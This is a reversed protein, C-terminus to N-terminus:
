NQNVSVIFTAGRSELLKVTDGHNLTEEESAPQVLIYHVQGHVDVFKAETPKNVKGVARGTVVATNGVFTNSSIASTEVKPMIRAIWEGIFHLIPVAAVFATSVALFQPWYFGFLSETTEQIILGCLAFSTLFVVIVMMFPIKGFSLWGLTATFIGPHHHGIDIDFDVDWGVVTDILNSITTGIIFGVLEIIGIILVAALCMYFVGYNPHHLLELM